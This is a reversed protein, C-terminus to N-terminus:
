ETFFESYIARICKEYDANDIGVTVNLGSSCQSILKVKVNAAAIATFLRALAGATSGIGTGVTSVLAINETVKIADPEVVRNIGDIVSQLKGEVLQSSDIVISLADVSSPVYEVSIDARSLVGLADAIIPYEETNLSKEVSIVTYNKKGAIGVVPNSDSIYQYDPLITTGAGRPNFTNKIQIPINAQRVPLISDGHVVTAGMYSLERLEKFSIKKILRPNAVIHPDCALFGPVDTWNEYLSAQVARAVIAGVIDSGGRSFTKIKGDVGRGYFGPLVALNCNKCASKIAKYSRDGDFVGDENFYIVSAADIFKAGLLEAFIRACLFEGRSATFELSHEEEIRRETEDLLSFIDFTLNLQKVISIFRNRVPAFANKCSGEKLYSAHCAYLLDTVKKDGSYRKGPASVVVYRRDPDSEIIKKVTKIVSADAM